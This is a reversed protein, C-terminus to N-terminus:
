FPTLPSPGAPAAVDSFRSYFSAEFFEGLKATARFRPIPDLEKRAPTFANSFSWM